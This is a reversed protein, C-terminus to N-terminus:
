KIQWLEVSNTEAFQHGPLRFNTLAKPTVAVDSRYYLPIVPVEDTYAKMMQHALEIRKKGDFETDLKEIAADVGANKWNMNNQGSWGNKESPVATSHLTSRPNSEPSSTWAYMAMAPFKRKKTTEGFFVKAPENKIVIEIGVDKWQSQLFTQVTERTKNGATTMFSFTMKKGDKYRFGDTTNLKWGAEELLRGAERRSYPYLTIKTPDKTFWPDQPSMSHIAVDQRGDFLAKVLEDRNIAYVLAKRVKLDKLIPNDLNLDIHEYTISPRFMVEFPLSEKKVKKDFAIAQDFAFGLTGITDIEGTRLNAELTGTNPILRVIIRQIKPAPGYFYPNPVFTVHSGLRVESIQYPGNFLGKTTPAKTYISNKEYGEKQAGYKKFVPEELHKPLPYMRGLQYFDWKAKEYTFTCKKPTAKDWEIKAVQTYTEKEGISVTPSAAVTRAFDFDACTLPTGDSWKANELIEWVAILQKKDASLKASGDEFNPIKKALQPVWKGDASMSTLARGVMSYMYATASMTMILPNMNEFEQSIGIKLEKNSLAASAFSAILTSAAVVAILGTRILKKM